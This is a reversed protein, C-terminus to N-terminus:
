CNMGKLKLPWLGFIMRVAVSFFFEFSAPDNPSSEPSNFGGGQLGDKKRIDCGGAKLKGPSVRLGM